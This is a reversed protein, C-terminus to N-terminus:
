KLYASSLVNDWGSAMVDEECYASLCRSYRSGSGNTGSALEVACAGVRYSSTRNDFGYTGLNIWQGRVAISLVSGTQYTGDYLRLATSCTAAPSIIGSDGGALSEEAANLEEITRFCQVMATLVLCARADGWGYTLDIETGEFVAVARADTFSQASVPLGGATVLVLAAIV